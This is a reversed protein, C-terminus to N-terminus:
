AMRQIVTYSSVHIALVCIITCIKSWDAERWCTRMMARDLNPATCTFWLGTLLRLQKISSHTNASFLFLIM